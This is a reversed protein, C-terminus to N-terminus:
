FCHGRIVKGEFSFPYFIYDMIFLINNRIDFNQRQKL